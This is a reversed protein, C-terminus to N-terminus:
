LSKAKLESIIEPENNKYKFSKIEMFERKEKMLVFMVKVLKICVLFMAETKAMKKGFSNISELKSHYYKKFYESRRVVQETALYLQKKVIRQGTCLKTNQPQFAFFGLYGLLHKHDSFREHNEIESLFIVASLKSLGRISLIYKSDPLHKFSKQISKEINKIQTNLHSILNTLENKLYVSKIQQNRNNSYQNRRNKLIEKEQSKIDRLRILYKINKLVEIQNVTNKM